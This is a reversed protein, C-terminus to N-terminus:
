RASSRRRSRSNRIFPTLVAFANIARGKIDEFWFFGRGELKNRISFCNDIIYVGERRLMFPDVVDNRYPPCISFAASYGAKEAEERVLRGARGFPYSLCRVEKGVIGSLRERSRFLEVKVEEHTLGTLDRHTMTHSGFTFGKSSLAKIDDTGLHMFRRWPLNLEWENYRGIYSTVVFILAPIGRKELVPAANQTFDRYGDDFTLLVKKRSGSAKGEIVRLFEEEGIFEFGRELLHDIQSEFRGRPM